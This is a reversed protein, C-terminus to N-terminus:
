ELLEREGADTTELLRNYNELSFKSDIPLLRDQDLFLVADVIEGDKFKYQMQYRNPPLVNKLVAELYYEGLVGRQKPNKLVDQLSNLEEAFSVVQRNTDDLKTLGETVERILKASESLQTTVSHHVQKSSEALRKDVTQSLDQLQQQLLLIGESGEKKKRTLFLWAVLGMNIVVLLGLLVLTTDM